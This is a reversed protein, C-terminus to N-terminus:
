RVVIYRSLWKGIPGRDKIKQLSVLLWGVSVSRDDHVGDRPRQM